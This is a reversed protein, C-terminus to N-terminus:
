DDNPEDSEPTENTPEESELPEVSEPVVFTVSPEETAPVIPGTEGGDDQGLPQQEDTLGLYQRLYVDDPRPIESDNTDEAVVAFMLLQGNENLRVDGLNETFVAPKEAALTNWKLVRIEVSEEGCQFDSESIVFGSPLEFESDSFTTQNENFFAGLTAYQGTVNSVFPHIHILGDGHTHIGTRDDSSDNRFVVPSLEDCVYIGYATHWHDDLTPDGAPALDARQNRAVLILVVGLLAVLTMAAPFLIKREGGAGKGGAGTSAAKAVKKAAASRAM